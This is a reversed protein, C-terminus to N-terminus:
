RPWAGAEEPWPEERTGEADQYVIPREGSWAVARKRLVRAEGPPLGRRYAKWFARRGGIGASLPISRNLQALTRARMRASVRGRLAGDVDVFLFSPPAWGPGEDEPRGGTDIFINCTKMDDLWVGSDHLARVAAGLAGLARRVEAAGKAGSPRDALRSGARGELRAALRSGARGELRAALWRDLQKRPSLDEM